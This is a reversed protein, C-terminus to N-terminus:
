LFTKVNLCKEVRTFVGEIEAQNLLDALSNKIEDRSNAFNQLKQILRDPLPTNKLVGQEKTNDYAVSLRPGKKNYHKAYSEDIFALTHDIVKLQRKGNIEKEWILNANKRDMTQLLYDYCAIDEMTSQDSLAQNQQEEPLIDVPKGYIYPRLSGENGNITRLVAPMTIHELDLFEAIQWAAVEKHSSPSSKGPIKFPKEFSGKNMGSDPKYVVLLKKGDPLVIEAEFIQDLHKEIDVIFVQDAHASVPQALDEIARINSILGEKLLAEEDKISLQEPEIYQQPIEDELNDVQTNKEINM